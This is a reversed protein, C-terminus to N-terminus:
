DTFVSNISRIFCFDNFIETFIGFCTGIIHANRGNCFSFAQGQEQFAGAHDGTTFSVDLCAIDRWGDDIATFGIIRDHAFLDEARDQRDHLEVVQRLHGIIHIGM